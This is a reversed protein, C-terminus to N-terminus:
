HDQVMATNAGCNPHATPSTVTAGKLAITCKSGSDLMMAVLLFQAFGRLESTM